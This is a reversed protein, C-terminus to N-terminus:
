TSIMRYNDILSFFLWPIFAILLTATLWASDLFESFDLNLNLIKSILFLMLFFATSLSSSAFFFTKGREVKIISLEKASPKENTFNQDFIREKQSKKLVTEEELMKELKVFFLVPTTWSLYSQKCYYSIFLSRSSANEKELIYAFLSIQKSLTTLLNFLVALYDSAKATSKKNM